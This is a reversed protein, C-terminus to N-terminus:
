ARGDHRDRRLAARGRRVFRGRRPHYHDRGREASRAGRHPDHAWARDPDGARPRRAVAAEFRIAARRGARAPAGALRARRSSPDDPDGGRAGALDAALLREVARPAPSPRARLRLRLRQAQPSHSLVRRADAASPEAHGDRHTLNLVGYSVRRSSGDPAVDCLRACLQAVPKDAALEIELEPAGLIEMRQTLPATSSLRSATTSASTSPRRARRAPAWGNAAPRARGAPRASRSRRRRGPRLALDAPTSPRAAAARHAAVAMAGRRRLPRAPIVIAPRRGNRSMPACCRSPWSAAHRRGEVLSGVLAAGGAPLRDRAGAPRGASLSAGLPRHARPASGDARRASAARRQYLRGGLRRGRVGSLRDRLFGRLGLRSALLRRAASPALWLAPLFPLRRLRELWQARWADGVLAPDPPRAQYALMIAGWWLNDNLLAGGMYHIDDAYRDDTSCVTVIAKLAPPRLAADAARQLRGM